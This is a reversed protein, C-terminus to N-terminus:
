GNVNNTLKESVLHGSIKAQKSKFFIDVKVVRLTIFLGM